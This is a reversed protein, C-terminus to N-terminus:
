VIDRVQHSIHMSFLYKLFHIKVNLLYIMLTIFFIYLWTFLNYLYRLYIVFLLIYKNPLVLTGCSFVNRLRYVPICTMRATALSLTNVESTSTYIDDEFDTHQEFIGLVM